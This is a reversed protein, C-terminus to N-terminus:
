RKKLEDIMVQNWRNDKGTLKHIGYKLRCTMLNYAKYMAWSHNYKEFYFKLSDLVTATRWEINEFSHGGEHFLSDFVVEVNRNPIRTFLDAEETNLFIGEDFGGADLIAQKKIALAAFCVWIRKNVFKNKWLSHFHRNYLWNFIASFMYYQPFLGYSEAPYDNEDLLTFGVIKTPDQELKDIAIHGIPQVLRVDPNLFLLKDSSANAIAINCGQGFGGNAPNHQYVISLNDSEYAKLQSEIKPSPSNDTIVVEINDNFENHEAISEIAKLLYDDSNYAVFIISLDKSM